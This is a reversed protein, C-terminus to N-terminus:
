RAGEDVDPAIALKYTAVRRRRANRHKGQVFGHVKGGAARMLSSGFSLNLYDPDEAGSLWGRTEAALRVAHFTIGPGERARDELLMERALDQLRNRLTTIRTEREETTEGIAHSLSLQDTMM